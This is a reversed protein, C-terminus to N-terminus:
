VNLQFITFVSGYKVFNTVLDTMRDVMELDEEPLQEDPAFVSNPRFIYTLDEAHGAGSFTINWAVRLASRQGVYSFRFVRTPQAAEVRKVLLKLTPYIFFTDSCLRIYSDMDVGNSFYRRHLLNIVDPMMQEPTQYALRAPVAASPTAELRGVIDLETLRPRFTEAESDTFGMLLPISGGRGRDVLAEPEDDLMPTIGDFSNEVVPAFTVFGFLNMLEENARLINEVPAKVLQRHLEEPDEDPNLGMKELFLNRIVKKYAPTSSLFGSIGNGSMLIARQFLNAAPSLTLLHTAASGASHGALTVQAADGGFEAANARVWRLLTVIDRLGANGPVRPTDLSLFGFVNLRYNFTVVIVGKSVLYEPGHLDTNGSGFSFAGGHVFVLMPLAAVHRKHSEWPLGLLPVHINAYICAESYNSLEALNRYLVDIQPCVPGEETANLAETWPELPQLKQFRLEGLPQRGYPVGRFSAYQNGSIDNRLAGCVWGAETRAAIKCSELSQFKYANGAWGSRLLLALALPLAIHALTCTM